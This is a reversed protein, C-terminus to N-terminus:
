EPPRKRKGRARADGGGKRVHSISNRVQGAVDSRAALVVRTARM